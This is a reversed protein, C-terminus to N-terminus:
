RARQFITVDPAVFRPFGLFASIQSRFQVDEKYNAQRQLIDAFDLSANKLVNPDSVSPTNMFGDSVVIWDPDRSKIFAPSL